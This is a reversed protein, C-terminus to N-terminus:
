VNEHINNQSYISLTRIDYFYSFRTVSINFYDLVGCQIPMSHVVDVM